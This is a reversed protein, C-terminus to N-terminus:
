PKMETLRCLLSGLERAIERSLRLRREPFAGGLVRLEVSQDHSSSRIQLRSDNEFERRRPTRALM